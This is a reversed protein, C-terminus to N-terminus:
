HRIVGEWQEDQRKGEKNEKKSGLFFFLSDAETRGKTGTAKKLM